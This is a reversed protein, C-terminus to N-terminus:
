KRAKKGRGKKKKSKALADDQDTTGAQQESQVEEAESMSTSAGDEAVVKPLIGRAELESNLQLANARGLANAEAMFSKAQGMLGGASGGSETPAAEQPPPPPRREFGAKKKESKAADKSKMRRQSRNVGSPAGGGQGRRRQVEEWIRAVNQERTLQEQQWAWASLGIVVSDTLLSLYPNGFLLVDPAIALASPQGALAGIALGGSAAGLGGLLAAGALRYKRNPTARAEAEIVEPPPPTQDLTAVITPTLRMHASAPRTRPPPSRAMAAAATPTLLVLMASLPPLRM